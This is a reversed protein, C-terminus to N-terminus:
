GAQRTLMKVAEERSVNQDKMLKAVRANFAAIDEEVGEKKADVKVNLREEDTEEQSSRVAGTKRELQSQYSNILEALEDADAKNILSQLAPALEFNDDGNSHALRALRLAEKRRGEIYKKGMAADKRLSERETLLQDVLAGLEQENTIEERGFKVALLMPNKIILESMDQGGENSSVNGPVLNLSEQEENNENEPAAPFGLEEKLQDNIEIVGGKALEDAGSWVLSLEWIDTIKTVIFRVIEGDVERGLMSYFTRWPMDEHSRRFKFGFGISVSDLLPPDSLLQRAENYGLVTDIQPNVNIGPVGFNKTDWWSKPVYGIINETLLIHNRFLKLGALMPTAEELVGPERLDIAYGEIYTQSIARFVTDLYDSKQPKLSEKISDKLEAEAEKPVAPAALAQSGDVVVPASLMVGPLAMRVRATNKSLIQVGFGEEM